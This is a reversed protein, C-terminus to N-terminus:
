VTNLPSIIEQFFSSLDPHRKKLLKVMIILTLSSFITVWSIPLVPLSSSAKDHIVYLHSPLQIGSIFLTM